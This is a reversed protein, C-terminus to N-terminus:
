PPEGQERCKSDLATLANCFWPRFSEDAMRHRKVIEPVMPTLRLAAAERAAAVQVHPSPDRLGAQLLAIQEAPVNSTRVRLLMAPERLNLRADGWPDNAFRRAVDRFALVFPDQVRHTADTLALVHNLIVHASRKHEARAM